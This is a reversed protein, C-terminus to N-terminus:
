KVRLTMPALFKMHRPNIASSFAPNTIWKSRAMWSNGVSGQLYVEYDEMILQEIARNIANRKQKKSM